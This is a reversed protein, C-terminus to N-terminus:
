GGALWELNVGHKETFNAIEHHKLTLATKIEEVSLDRFLAITRIRRRMAEKFERRRAWRGETTAPPEVEGLSAPTRTLAADIAASLKTECSTLLEERAAARKRDQELQRRIAKLKSRAKGIDVGVDRVLDSEDAKVIQDYSRSVLRHHWCKAVRPEIPEDDDETPADRRPYRAGKFASLEIINSM